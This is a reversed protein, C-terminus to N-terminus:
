PMARRWCVGNHDVDIIPEDIGHRERYDDIAQKCADIIHYDDIICYGGPSLKPYLYTSRTWRHSTCTATSDSCRWSSSPPM